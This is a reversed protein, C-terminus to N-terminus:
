KGVGRVQAQLLAAVSRARLDLEACTWREPAEDESVFSCCIRASEHSARWRLTEVITPFQTAARRSEM